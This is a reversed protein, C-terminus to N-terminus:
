QNHYADILSQVEKHLLNRKIYAKRQSLDKQWASKDRLLECAREKQQSSHESHSFCCFQTLYVIDLNDKPYHSHGTWHFMEHFVLSTPNGIRKRFPHPMGPIIDQRNLRAGFFLLTNKIDEEDMHVRFNGAMRNTDFLVSPHSPLGPRQQITEPDSAVAFYSHTVGYNCTLTKIQDSQLIHYLENLTNFVFPHFENKEVCHSIKRFSAKLNKALIFNGETEPNISRFYPYTECKNIQFNYNLLLTSEEEGQTSYIDFLSESLFRFDKAQISSIFM